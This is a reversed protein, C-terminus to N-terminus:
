LEPTAMVIVCSARSRGSLRFERKHRVGRRDTGGDSQLRRRWCHKTFSFLCQCAARSRPQGASFEASHRPNATSSPGIIRPPRSLTLARRTRPGGGAKDDCPATGKRVQTSPQGSCAAAAARTTPRRILNDGDDGVRFTRSVSTECYDRAGAAAPGSMVCNSAASPSASARPLLL